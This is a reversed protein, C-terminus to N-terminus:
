PLLRSEIVIREISCDSVTMLIGSDFKVKSIGSTM